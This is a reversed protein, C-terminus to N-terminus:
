LSFTHGVLDESVQWLRAGLATHKSEGTRNARDVPGKLKMFKQPGYYEGGKASFTTLSM